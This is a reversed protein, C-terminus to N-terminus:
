KKEIIMNTLRCASIKRGDDHTILIDWVHTRTGKHLLTAHANVFGHTAQGIHSATMQMGVVNYKSNDVLGISAASGVTEALALSAGGHLIGMPQRTRADVPMRAKLFDDGAETFEIGLHEVLTNTCLENLKQIEKM